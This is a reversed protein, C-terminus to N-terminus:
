LLAATLLQAQHPVGQAASAAPGHRKGQGPGGRGSVSSRPRLDLPRPSPSITHARRWSPGRGQEQARVGPTSPLGGGGM